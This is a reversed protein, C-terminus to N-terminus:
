YYHPQRVLCGKKNIGLLTQNLNDNTAATTELAPNVMCSFCPM